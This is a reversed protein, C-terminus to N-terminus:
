RFCVTETIHRTILSLSHTLPFYLLTLKLIIIYCFIFYHTLEFTNIRKFIFYFLILFWSFIFNLSFFILFHFKVPFFWFHHKRLLTKFRNSLFSSLFLRCFLPLLFIQRFVMACVWMPYQTPFFTICVCEDNVFVVKINLKWWYMWSKRKRNLFLERKNKLSSYIRRRRQLRGICM